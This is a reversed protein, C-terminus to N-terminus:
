HGGHTLVTNFRQIDSLTGWKKPRTCVPPSVRVHLHHLECGQWHNWVIGRYYAVMHLLAYSGVFASFFFQQRTLMPTLYVICFEFLFFWHLHKILFEFLKKSKLLVNFHKPSYRQIYVNSKDTQLFFLRRWLLWGVVSFGSCVVCNNMPCMFSNDSMWVSFLVTSFFCMVANTSIPKLLM